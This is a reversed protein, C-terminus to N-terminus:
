PRRDPAVDLGANVICEDWGDRDAVAGDDSCARDDGVVNRGARQRDCPRSLHGFLAVHIFAVLTCIGPNSAGWTVTSGSVACRQISRPGCFRSISKEPEECGASALSM